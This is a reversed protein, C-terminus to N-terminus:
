GGARGDRHGVVADRPAAEDRDLQRRGAGPGGQADDLLLPYNWPVILACVGLPERVTYNLFGHPTQVTEGTIKTAAGAYFELESIAQQLEGRVSGIAKGNDQSELEALSDFHEVDSGGPPVDAAHPKQGSVRSWKGGDFAARAAAVAAGCRRRPVAAGRGPRADTRPITRRCGSARRRRAPQNSILMPYRERNFDPM